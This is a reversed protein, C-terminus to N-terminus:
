SPRGRTPAAGAAAPQKPARGAESRRRPGRRVPLGSTRRAVVIGTWVAAFGAVISTLAYADATSWHGLALMGRLEVTYTSFTTFGGLVGVGLFPRVYRSPPWVELVYVMLLGLLFCGSVNTLFTAWPFGGAPTPLAKALGYRAISGLGGGLAIVAQIDWQRSRARPRYTRTAVAPRPEADPDVPLTEAPKGAQSREM